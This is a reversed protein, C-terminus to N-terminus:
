TKKENENWKDIHLQDQNRLHENVNTENEVHYSLTYELHTGAEDESKEKLLITLIEPFFEMLIQEYSQNTELQYEKVKEIAEYM